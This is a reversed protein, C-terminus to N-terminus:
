KFLIISSGAKTEVKTTTNIFGIQIPSSQYPAGSTNIGLQGYSNVGFGYVISNVSVLLTTDQNTAANNWLNSAFQQRPFQVAPLGLQGFLNYGWTYL